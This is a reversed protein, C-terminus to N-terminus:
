LGVENWIDKGPEVLWEPPAPGIEWGGDRWDRTYEWVLWSVLAVAVGYRLIGPLRRATRHTLSEQASDGNHAMRTSPQADQEEGKFSAM